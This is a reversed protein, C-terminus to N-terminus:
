SADLTKERLWSNILVESPVNRISAIETLKEAIDEDITFVHRRKQIDVDFSVETLNELYDGLDHTDFYEVLEDSSVFHPLIQGNNKAM